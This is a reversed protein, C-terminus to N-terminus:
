SFWSAIRGFMNTFFFKVSKGFGVPDVKIKGEGKLEYFKDLPNDADMISQVTNGNELYVKMTANQTEGPGIEKFVGESTIAYGVPTEDMLYANVIEDGYMPVERGIYPKVPEEIKSYIETSNQAFVFSSLLILFFLCIIKKM